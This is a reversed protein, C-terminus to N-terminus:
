IRCVLWTGLGKGSVGKNTSSKVREEGKVVQQMQHAEMEMVGVIDHVLLWRVLSMLSSTRSDCEFGVSM